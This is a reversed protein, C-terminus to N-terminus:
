YFGRYFTVVTKDHAHIIDRLSATKGSVTTLQVDPVPKGVPITSAAIETAEALHFHHGGCAILLALALWRM